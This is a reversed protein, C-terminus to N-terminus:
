PSSEPTSGDFFTDPKNRLPYIRPMIVALILGVLIVTGYFQLFYNALISQKLLSLVSLLRFLPSPLPSQLRKERQITEKRM